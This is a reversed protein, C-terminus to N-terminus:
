KKGGNLLVDGVTMTAGYSGLLVLQDLIPKYQPWFLASLGALVALAGHVQPKRLYSLAKEM